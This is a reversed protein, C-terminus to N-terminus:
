FKFNGHMRCTALLEKWVIADHKVDIQNLIEKVKDLKADYFRLADGEKGNQAYCVM